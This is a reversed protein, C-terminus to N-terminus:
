NRSKEGGKEFKIWGVARKPGLGVDKVRMNVVEKEDSIYLSVVEGFAPALPEDQEEKRIRGRSFFYTRERSMEDVHGLVYSRGSRDTAFVERKKFESLSIAPDKFRYEAAKKDSRNKKKASSGYNSFYAQIRTEEPKETKGPMIVSGLVKERIKFM